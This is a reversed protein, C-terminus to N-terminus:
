RGGSGFRRQAYQRFAADFAAPTLEFAAAYADLRRPPAFAHLFRRVGDIGWRSEIFDFAAHGIADNVRSNTFGGDGKLQSMAPVDGSAALARILRDKADTWDRAMYGAVGEHIWRPL